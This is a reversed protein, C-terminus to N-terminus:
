SADSAAPLVLRFTAGWDPRSEVEVEGGHERAIERVVALGLGSGSRASTARVGPEFIRELDEPLVGEGEDIVSVLCSGGRRTAAVTVTAGAPSHGIANGILNDLAQRLRTADGIVALATDTEPAVVISSGGLTATECADLAIRGLDLRTLRLTAETVDTLLRELSAGATCALEVLRLRTSYDADAYVESIALLAAVPSRLEHVLVDLRTRM